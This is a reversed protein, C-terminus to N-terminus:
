LENYYKRRDLAEKKLRFIYSNREFEYEKLKEHHKKELLRCKGEAEQLRGENTGRRLKKIEEFAYLLEEEKEILARNAQRVGEELERLKGQLEAAKEM